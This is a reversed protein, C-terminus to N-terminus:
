SDGNQMVCLNMYIIYCWFLRCVQELIYEAYVPAIPYRLLGFM